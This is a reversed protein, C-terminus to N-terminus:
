LGALWGPANVVISGLLALLALVPPVGWRRVGLLWLALLVLALALVDASAQSAPWIVAQLFTWGLSAIVGIVACTVARLPLAYVPRGRSAEVWPGGALIFVFSPLFTFWTAVCAALVGAALLADPGLIQQGWAGVFAVFAVVMILPGPTTEGLALGDMMQATTLWQHEVAVQQVYPLVAYAGGFTLLAARTFFAAMQTLTAHWGWLALLLLMPLAWLLLGAALVWLLRRREPQAHDPLPSHDDILARDAQAGALSPPEDSGLAHPAWRSAAWGLGLALLVLAPFPGDFVALTVFASLALLWPLPRRHVPELCRRGLRYLAHLVLAAVAPKLGYLVGAAAPHQGYLMYLGSLLLLLVLSPLIFLVGAVVGGLTRHMLWGLYTALQQAEPGPLLMCYSLAHMFRQQSIWRRQEVLERQMIAIQGAPGGFSIFGLRLWFLFAQRRPVQEALAPPPVQSM